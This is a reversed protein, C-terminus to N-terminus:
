RDFMVVGRAVPKCVLVFPARLSREADRAEVVSGFLGYVATGTGSMAVGLAGARLLEEELRQVGPVLDKTVRALDNGLGKALAGLDGARLAEVVPVVSPKSEGPREDYARYIRATGAGAAPKAVVLYHPPPAPLTSLVEGVGRGLATGGGICFPVDAGIKLGVEKLETDSLGLGFIENLGVLTAAADSSGGGLGAGTPVRKRLRVRVPLEDGAIEALLKHARYITNGEPPGTETGEPEVVLEFGRGVREIEVEDYLSISQFITSIEHYGDPRVGLVELAYNVKAFTRIRERM